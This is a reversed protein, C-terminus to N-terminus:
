QQGRSQSGARPEQGRSAPQLAAVKHRPGFRFDREGGAIDANSALASRTIETCLGRPQSKWLTSREYAGTEREHVCMVAMRLHHGVAGNQAKVRWVYEAGPGFSSRKSEIGLEKKIRCFTSCRSIDQDPRLL